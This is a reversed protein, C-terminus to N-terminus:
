ISFRIFLPNALNAILLGVMLYDYQLLLFRYSFYTAVGAIAGFMIGRLIGTGSTKPEILMIFLFFWSIISFGNMRSLSMLTLFVALFSVIHFAKKLRYALYFGVLIILYANSEMMWSLPLHFLTAILLAFGAPNLFHHQRYRICYKSLVAVASFIIVMYFPEYFSLIGAVIFGSIMGSKPVKLRRYFVYSLLFDLFGATTVGLLLWYFLSIGDRSIQIGCLIIFLILVVHRQDQLFKRIM